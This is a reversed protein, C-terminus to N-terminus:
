NSKYSYKIQSEHPQSWVQCTCKMVRIPPALQIGAESWCFFVSKVVDGRTRPTLRDLCLCSTLGPLIQCPQESTPESSKVAGPLALTPSRPCNLTYNSFWPRIGGAPLLGAWRHLYSIGGDATHPISAGPVHNWFM